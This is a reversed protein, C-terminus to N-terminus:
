FLFLNVHAKLTYKVTGHSKSCNFTLSDCLVTDLTWFISPVARVINTSVGHM